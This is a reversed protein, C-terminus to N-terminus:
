DMEREIFDSFSDRGTIGFKVDDRKDRKGRIFESSSRVLQMHPAVIKFMEAVRQRPSGPHFIRSSENDKHESNAPNAVVVEIEGTKNEFLYKLGPLMYPHMSLGVFSIKHARQVAQKAGMWISNYLNYLITAQSEQDTGKAQKAFIFEQYRIFQMEDGFLEWPFVVPPASRNIKTDHVLQLRDSLSAGFLRKHESDSAYTLSGHLKFHRFEPEPGALSALSAADDPQFFGSSIRGKQAVTPEPQEALKNRYAQAQLLLYELYCDYNYSIVTVHPKLLHLDYQDFLRQIFPYYDSNHFKEEPNHLSLALLMLQKMEQVRAPYKASALKSFEDITGFGGRRFQEVTGKFPKFFGRCQLRETDEPVGKTGETLERLDAILQDESSLRLRLGSALPYGSTKSAGAGLFIVHKM